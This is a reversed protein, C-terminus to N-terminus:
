NDSRCTYLIIILLIVGAVALWLQKPKKYTGSKYIDYLLVFLVLALAAFLIIRIM